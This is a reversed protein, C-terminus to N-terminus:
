RRRRLRPHRRHHVHARVNTLTFSARTAIGAVTASATYTGPNSNATLTPATAVGSSDTSVVTRSSGGPFRASAGTSPLTFTVSAGSVAGGAASLVTARLPSAFPTGVATTQNDGAAAVISAPSSVAAPTTFKEIQGRTTGTLASTTDLRFFYQTSPTLGTLSAQVLQPQTGSGADQTPTSTGLSTSTGYEFSYTTDEGEPTIVGNLTASTSGLDSAPTTVGNTCAPSNADAQATAGNLQWTVTPIFAGDFDVAFARPYNGANFTTPQGGDTSGPFVFNDDGVEFTFRVSATNNYGFYATYIPNASDGNFHVCDLFPTLPVAPSAAASATSILALAAALTALRMGRILTNMHSM